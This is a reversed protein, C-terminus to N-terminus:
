EKNNIQATSVSIIKKLNARTEKKETEIDNLTPIYHRVTIIKNQIRKVDSKLLYLNFIFIVLSNM